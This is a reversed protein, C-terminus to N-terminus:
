EETAAQEAEQYTVWTHRYEENTGSKGGNAAFPVKATNGHREKKRWLMWIKEGKLSQM